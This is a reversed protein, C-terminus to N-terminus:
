GLRQRGRRGVGGEFLSALLELRQSLFQLVLLLAPLRKVRFIDLFEDVQPSWSLISAFVSAPDAGLFAILAIPGGADRVVSFDAAHVGIIM